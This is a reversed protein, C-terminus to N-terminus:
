AQAAMLRAVTADWLAHRAVLSRHAAQEAELRKAADGGYLTELLREALPGHSDGDVEIHRQLYGLLRQCAHGQEVFHHVLPLFMKPILDERGHFFVAAREHLSRDLFWLTTRTFAAAEAPIGPAELLDYASAGRQLQAVFHRVPGTDAGIEEMAELYWEFHSGHRGPEIEDSEEGLVIENIFRAAEGDVPPTWPLGVCTLDRQLSKLLTMFDWVAFVHRECFVRLDEPTRIAGYLPHEALSRSLASLPLKALPTPM